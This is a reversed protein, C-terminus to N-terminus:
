DKLYKLIRKPGKFLFGTQYYFDIRYLPIFFNAFYAGVIFAFLTALAVGILGYMPILTFSLLIYAIGGIINTLFVWRQRGETIIIISVPYAMGCFLGKIALIQLLPISSKYDAGYLISIVPSAALILFITIFFGSYTILDGVKNKFDIYMLNKPDFNAEEFKRTLMPAMTQVLVLPIFIAFDVFKLAISYYAVAETNILKGTLVVDIKQYFMGTIGELL